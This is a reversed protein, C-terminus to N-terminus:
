LGFSASKEKILEDGLSLAFCVILIAALPFKLSDPKPADFVTASRQISLAL